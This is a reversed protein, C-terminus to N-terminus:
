WLWPKEDGVEVAGEDAEGIGVVDAVGRMVRPRM